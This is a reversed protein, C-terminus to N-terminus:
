CGTRGAASARREDQVRGARVLAAVVATTVAGLVVWPVVMWLMTCTM